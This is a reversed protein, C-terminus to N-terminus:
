GRLRQVLLSQVKEVIFQLKERDEDALYRSQIKDLSRRINDALLGLRELESSREWSSFDIRIGVSVSNDKKKYGVYDAPPPAISSDIIGPLILIGTITSSFTIDKFSAFVEDEFMRSLNGGTVNVTTVPRVLFKFKADSQKGIACRWIEGQILVRQEQLGLM